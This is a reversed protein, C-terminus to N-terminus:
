IFAVALKHQKKQLAHLTNFVCVNMNFYKTINHCVTYFSAYMKPRPFYNITVSM